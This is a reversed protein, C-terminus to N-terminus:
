SNKKEYKPKIETEIYDEIYPEIGTNVIDIKTIALYAGRNLAKPVESELAELVKVQAYQEGFNLLEEETFNPMEIKKHEFDQLQWKYYFEQATIPTQEKMYADIKIEDIDEKSMRQLNPEKM